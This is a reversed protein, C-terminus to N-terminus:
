RDLDIFMLHNNKILVMDYLGIRHNTAGGVAVAYKEMIRMMPTTKRTDLITVGYPKVLKVYEATTTSVGSLQQMINLSLREGMLLARAKGKVVAIIDGNRVRDGDKKKMTVKIGPDLKQFVKKILPLGCIIGEDKSIFVGKMVASQPIVIDTTVDGPGIDEQLAENILLDIHKEHQKLINM